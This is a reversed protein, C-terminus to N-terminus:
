PHIAKFIFDPLEKKRTEIFENYEEETLNLISKLLPRAIIPFISLSVINIILQRHDMGKIGEDEMSKKVRTLIEAPPTPLNKMLDAIRAPNHNIENLIFSPIYPNRQMFGIYDSFLYRIKEEFSIDSGVITFIKKFLENFADKFVADFLNEKSRYYYHLLSKNIGAEDAIEQMRTGDFGKRHFVTKAADLIKEETSSHATVM